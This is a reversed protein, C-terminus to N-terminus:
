PLLQMLRESAERGLGLKACIARAVEKKEGPVAEAPKQLTKELLNPVVGLKGGEGFGIALALETNKFWERKGSIIFSGHPLYEGPKPTKSVQERRVAYVDVSTFGAKWASSFCAAWQAAEKKEEESAETGGKLITAAAGQVDAHFFLDPEEFYHKVALENQKADKGSICLRGGSTKFFHFREFWEKKEVKKEVLKEAAERAEGEAGVKGELETIKREVDAIAKLLGAKKARAKKAKEFYAAANENISKRADLVVEAM